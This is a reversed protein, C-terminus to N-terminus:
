RNSERLTSKGKRALDANYEIQYGLTLAILHPRYEFNEYYNEWYFDSSTNFGFNSHMRSYRADLVFRSGNALEYVAGFGGTIAYQLRNPDELWRDTDSNRANESFVFRYTVPYEDSLEEESFFEEFEDLRIGGNGGVWYNLEVGGNMYMYFPANGFHINVRLM